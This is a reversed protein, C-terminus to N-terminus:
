RLNSANRAKRGKLYAVLMEDNYGADVLYTIAEDEQLNDALIETYSCREVEGNLNIFLISLGYEILDKAVTVGISFVGAPTELGDKTLKETAM